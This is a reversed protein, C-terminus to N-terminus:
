FKYVSYVRGKKPKGGHHGEYGRQKYRDETAQAQARTLGDKVVRFNSVDEGAKKWEEKRINPDRGTIGVRKAM